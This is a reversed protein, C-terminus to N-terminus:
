MWRKSSNTIEEIVIVIFGITTPIPVDCECSGARQHYQKLHWGAAAWFIITANNNTENKMEDTIGDVIDTFENFKYRLFWRCRRWM